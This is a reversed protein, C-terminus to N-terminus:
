SNKLWAIADAKNEFGKFKIDRGLHLTDLTSFFLTRLRSESFIIAVKDFTRLKWLVGIGKTQAAISAGTGDVESIDDLLKKVNKEEALKLAANAPADVQDIDIAGWTKMSVYDDIVELSFQQPTSDM